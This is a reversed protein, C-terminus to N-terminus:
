PTLSTETKVTVVTVNDHGGSDLARAVLVEPVLMPDNETLVYAIEDESVEKTLGDSCLLFVDNERADLTVLDLLLEDAGGVARTIVNAEPHSPAAEPTVFGGRVLEDIMSHDRTLAKLENNRFLYARSDGAWLCACKRDRALLVVVTSGIIDSGPRTASTQRLASNVGELQQKTLAIFEDLSEPPPIVRLSEVIHRSATDGAKHGGMGDAVAWLGNEPLSLCADENVSRVNGSHTLQASSWHVRTAKPVSCSKAALDLQHNQWGWHEWHGDMLASFGHMSPLGKCLALSPGVHDSGATSWASYGPLLQRMLHETLTFWDPHEQESSTLDFHWADNGGPPSSHILPFEELHDTFVRGLEQAQADFAELNFKDDLSKLALREAQTFWEGAGFLIQLLNAQAPLQVALTFPFYRGVRDVSPILVGAWGNDGCMGASLGFRWIPSTLYIDLWTDALQDRSCSIGQQLWQDWTDVFTRPLRRSVFDGHSAVKGYFGLISNTAPKM